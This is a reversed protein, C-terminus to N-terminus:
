PRIGGVGFRHVLRDNHTVEVLDGTEPIYDLGVVTIGGITSFSRTVTTSLGDHVKITTGASTILNSGDWCLSHPTYGSDWEVNSIEVGSTDMIRLRPTAGGAYDWMILNTGDTTAARIYSSAHGVTRKFTGTLLDYVRFSGSQSNYLEGDLILTDYMSSSMIYQTASKVGTILDYNWYRSYSSYTVGCYAVGGHVAVSQPTYAASAIDFATLTTTEPLILPESPAVAAVKPPIILPRLGKQLPYM